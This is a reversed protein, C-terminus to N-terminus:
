KWRWVSSELQQIVLLRASIPGAPGAAPTYAVSGAPIKLHASKNTVSPTAIAGDTAQILMRGIEGTPAQSSDV